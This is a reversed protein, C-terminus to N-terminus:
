RKKPLKTVKGIAITQGEDRLTFRGLQPVKQFEEICISKEVAIRCSVMTNSKVFKVKKEKGNRPNIEALLKSVECEEVISHIHLVAKYGATFVGSQSQGKGLDLVMLQAEFQTVAPVVETPCSIVFGASIDGEEVGSLKLRLNEGPRAKRVESDDRYITEVKVKFRNPMLLLTDGVRVTGSESKGMVMTGMDRYKDIIPMRFAGDANRDQPELNDLLDFLSGKSWWPCSEKSVPEMINAGLLASIPLFVLDKEKYGCTKLFPTLKDQIEKFRVESWKGNALIISPDDMKNVVIVLKAVGLTKALQAHERTQGGRDFGTEFEGKRAAIVLVGVDAQSAGSIMNPVYTAHGPADLITYRKKETSFNARGVEVTKGKEREEENTDMIYAMYWSDRNKDKAEKEYKQITREDVGGTKFLIQGGLTSKGADVHGIFVVNLHEKMDDEDQSEAAAPPPAGPKDDVRMEEVGEAIEQVAEVAPASTEPPCVEMADEQSTSPPADAEPVDAPPQAAEPQSPPAGGFNPVFSPANASLQFPRATPNLGRPPAGNQGEYSEEWSDGM